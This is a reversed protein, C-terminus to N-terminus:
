SLFVQFQFNLQESKEIELFKIKQPSITKISNIHHIVELITRAPIVEIGELIAAEQTNQYPLIIQKFGEKKAQLAIPLAGKIPRLEGDLALEGMLLTKSINENPIQQSAILIGIAIPLDYASGEKRVDAPALNIIISKVPIRYGHFQLASEIRKQSEKIANDPLGVLSYNVDMSINVEITITQAKIGYVASGFTKTFM